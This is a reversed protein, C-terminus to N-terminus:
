ASAPQPILGLDRMIGVWDQYMWSEVIKNHAIRSVFALKVKVKKGTAPIKLGPSAGLQTGEWYGKGALFDGEQVLNEIIMHFDPYSARVEMAYKRYGAASNIDPMLLDHYMYNADCVEELVSLNGRNWAEEIARMQLDKFATSM